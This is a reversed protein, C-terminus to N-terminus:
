QYKEDKTVLRLFYQLHTSSVNPHTSPLFLERNYTQNKIGFLNQKCRCDFNDVCICCNQIFYQYLRHCYSFSSLSDSDFCTFYLNEISNSLFISEYHSCFIIQLHTVANSFLPLVELFGASAHWYFRTIDTM